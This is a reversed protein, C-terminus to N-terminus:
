EGQVALGVGEREGEGWLLLCASEVSEGEGGGRQLAEGRGRERGRGFMEADEKAKVACGLGSALCLVCEVGILCCARCEVVM